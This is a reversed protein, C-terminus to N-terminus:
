LQLNKSLVRMTIIIVPLHATRLLQKIDNSTLKSKTSAFQYKMRKAADILATTRYATKYSIQNNEFASQCQEKLWNLTSEAKNLTEATNALYQVQQPDALLHIMAEKSLDTTDIEAGTPLSDVPFQVISPSTTDM